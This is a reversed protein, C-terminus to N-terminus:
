YICVQLFSGDRPATKLDDRHQNTNMADLWALKALVGGM